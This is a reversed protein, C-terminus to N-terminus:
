RRHVYEVWEDTHPEYLPGLPAATKGKSGGATTPPRM